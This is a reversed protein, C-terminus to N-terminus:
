SELDENGFIKVFLERKLLALERLDPDAVSVNVSEGTPRHMLQLYQTGGIAIVELNIDRDLLKSDIVSTEDTGHVM